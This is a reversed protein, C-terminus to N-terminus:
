TETITADCLEMELISYETWETFFDPEPYSVTFVTGIENKESMELKGNHESADVKALHEAEILANEKSSYVQNTAIEYCTEQPGYEGEPGDGCSFKMIIYVKNNQM